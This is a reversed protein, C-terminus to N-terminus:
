ARALVADRSATVDTRLADVDVDILTPSCRM